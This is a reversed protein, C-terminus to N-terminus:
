RITWIRDYEATDNYFVPRFTTPEFHGDSSGSITVRFRRLTGGPGVPDTGAAHRNLVAAPVWVEATNTAFDLSISCEACPPDNDVRVNPEEGAPRNAHVLFQGDNGFAWEISMQEDANALRTFTTRMVLSDRGRDYRAVGRRLDLYDHGPDADGEPDEVILTWPHGHEAPGSPPGDFPTPTHPVDVPVPVTLATTYPRAADAAKELADAVAPPTDTDIGGARNGGDDAARISQPTSGGVQALALGVALVGAVVPAMRGATRRRRISRARGHVWALVDGEPAPAPWTQLDTPM